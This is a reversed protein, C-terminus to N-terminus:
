GQGEADLDLRSWRGRWRGQIGEPLLRLSTLLFSLMTWWVSVLLVGARALAFPDGSLAQRAYSGIAHPVTDLVYDWEPGLPRVPLRTRRHLIAKSRGEGQCRRLVYGLRQRRRPVHHYIVAAPEYVFWMDPHAEAVRMCFETEECGYLGSAARGLEPHFGGLEEFLQRRFLACGGFINRVGASQQEPLGAYSCGVAWLLEMPFWRPPEDAWLPRSVGGAGAVESRDVVEILSGLWGEDAVADDDLFALFSGRARAIGLNRAASLGSARATCLVVDAINRARLEAYIDPQGDVVVIIELLKVQQRRLSALCAELQELRERLHVCVIASVPATRHSV